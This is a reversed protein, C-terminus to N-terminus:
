KIQSHIGLTIETLYRRLEAVNSVHQEFEARAKEYREPALQYDRGHPRMTQLKDQLAIALSHAESYSAFLDRGDTGNINITPLTPKQKLPLQDTM